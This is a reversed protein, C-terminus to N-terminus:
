YYNCFVSSLIRLCSVTAIVAEHQPTTSTHKNMAHRTNLWILIVTLCRVLRIRLRDIHTASSIDALSRHIPSVTFYTRCVFTTIKKSLNVDYGSETCLLKYMVGFDHDDQVYNCCGTGQETRQITKNFTKFYRSIFLSTLFM